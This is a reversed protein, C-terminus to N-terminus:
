SPGHGNEPRHFCAGARGPRASARTAPDVAELEGGGTYMRGSGERHRGSLARITSIIEARDDNVPGAQQSHHQCAAARITYCRRRMASFSGSAWLWLTRDSVRQRVGHLLGTNFIRSALAREQRLYLRFESQLREAPTAAPSVPEAVVRQRRLLELLRQLASVDNRTPRRRRARARLYPRFLKASVESAQIRRKALWCGFDAVLRIQVERTQRAYGACRMEAEYSDIYPGLPGDQRCLRHARFVQKM